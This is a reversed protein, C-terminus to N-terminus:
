KNGRPNYLSQHMILNNDKWNESLWESLSNFGICKHQLNHLINKIPASEINITHKYIEGNNKIIVLDVHCGCFTYRIEKIPSEDDIEDDNKYMLGDSTKELLVWAGDVRCYFYVGSMAKVQVLLHIDLHLIIPNGFLIFNL